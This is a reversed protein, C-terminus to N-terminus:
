RGIPQSASAPLQRDSQEGLVTSAPKPKAVREATEGRAGSPQMARMIRLGFWTLDGESAASNSGYPM